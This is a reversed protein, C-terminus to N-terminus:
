KISYNFKLGIIRITESSNKKKVKHHHYFFRATIRKKMKWDTGLTLRYERRDDPETALPRFMEGAVFPLLNRSKCLKIKLRNRFWYISRVNEIYERQIRSRNSISYEGAKFNLQMDADFRHRIGTGRATLRYHVSFGTLRNLRYGIGIESFTSKLSM